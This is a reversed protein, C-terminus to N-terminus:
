ELERGRWYGPRRKQHMVAVITIANKEQRYIIAYPFPRLGLKRYGAGIPSYMGPSAAIDQVGADFTDLFRKALGPKQAEYYMAADQLEDAAGPLIPLNTM